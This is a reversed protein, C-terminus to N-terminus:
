QASSEFSYLTSCFHTLFSDFTREDAIDELVTKFAQLSAHSLENHCM